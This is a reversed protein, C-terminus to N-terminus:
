YEWDVKVLKVQVMSIVLILILLVVASASAYGLRSNTFANIYINVAMLESAHNPGGRTLVMVQTFVQFYSIVTMVSVFLMTRVLLPLTIKFFITLKNAGDILASEYFMRPIGALGAQIIIINYGIDQWLNIIIITTLALKPDGIWYMHLNIGLKSLIVAVAGYNPDLLYNWVIAIAAINATTPLFYITRFINKHRENKISTIAAAILTALILNVGVSIVVFYITNKFSTIFADDSLLNIYNKLGVFPPRSSLPNYNYLSLVISLIIPLVLFVFFLLMVPALSFLVFKSKSNWRKKKKRNLSPIREGSSIEM